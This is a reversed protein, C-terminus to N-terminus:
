FRLGPLVKFWIGAATAGIALAIAIPLRPRFVAHVLEQAAEQQEPGPPTSELVRAMEPVVLILAFLLFFAAFYVLTLV